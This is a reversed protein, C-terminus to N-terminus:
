SFAALNSGSSKGLYAEIVAPHALVEDPGGEVVTQGYNFVILRDCLARVAQVNHEVVVVTVGSTRVQRLMAVAARVETLNLGGLPEDLLLVKPRTALARALEVRKQDTLTLQSAPSQAKDRLGVSAILSLSETRAAELGSGDRGYLRGVLVNDLVSLKPLTRVLQFTRAIGLRARANAPLATIDRNDLRVQGADPHLAGAILNLLTTKGSGNPGLLGVVEESAVRFSVRSVALLGGFTKTLGEVELLM